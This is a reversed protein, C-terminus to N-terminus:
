PHAILEEPNFTHEAGNADLTISAGELVIMASLSRDRDPVHVDDAGRTALHEVTPVISARAGHIFGSIVHGPITAHFGIVEGEASAQIMCGFGTMELEVPQGVYLDHSQSLEFALHNDVRAVLAELEAPSLTRFDRQCLDTAIQQLAQLGSRLEIDETDLSPYITETASM